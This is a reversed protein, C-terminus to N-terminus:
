GVMGDDRTVDKLVDIVIMNSSKVVTGMTIEIDMYLKGIPWNKTDEVLVAYQGPTTLSIVQASAILADERNRIQSRVTTITGAGTVSITLNFTDGRIHQITTM